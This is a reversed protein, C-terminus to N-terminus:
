DWLAAKWITVALPCPSVGTVALADTDIIKKTPKEGEAKFIGQCTQGM